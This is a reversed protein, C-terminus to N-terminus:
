TPTECEMECFLDLGNGSKSAIQVAAERDSVAKAPTSEARNHVQKRRVAAAAQARRRRRIRNKQSMEFRRILVDSAFITYLMCILPFTFIGLLVAEFFSGVLCSSIIAVPLALEPRWGMTREIQALAWIRNIAWGAIAIALLFGFFGVGAGAAFYSNEGFEVRGGPNLPNGLLPHEAMQELQSKWVYSRTNETSFIRSNDDIPIKDM